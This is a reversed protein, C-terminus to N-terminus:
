QHKRLIKRSPRKHSMEASEGKFSKMEDKMKSHHEADMYSGESKPKAESSKTM